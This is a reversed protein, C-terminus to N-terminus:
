LLCLSILVSEWVLSQKCLPHKGSLALFLLELELSILFTLNLLVFTVRPGFDLLLNEEDVPGLPKM